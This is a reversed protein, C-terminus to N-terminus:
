LTLIKVVIDQRYELHKIRALMMGNIILQVMLTAEMLFNVYQRAQLFLQHQTLPVVLKGM